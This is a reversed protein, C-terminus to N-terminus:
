WRGTYWSSDKLDDRTLAEANTDVFLCNSRKSHRLYEGSMDRPYAPPTWQYWNNFTDGNGDTVEEWADFALLTRSPSLIKAQKKGPWNTSTGALDVTPIRFFLATEHGAGYIAKRQPDKVGSNQGGYCNEGYAFSRNLAADMAGGISVVQSPPVFTEFPLQGAVPYDVGWYWDSVIRPNVLPGGPKTTRPGPM